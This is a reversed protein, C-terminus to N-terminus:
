PSDDRATLRVSPDLCWALVSSWDGYGADLDLHRGGVIIDSDLGLAAYASGAGGVCYPDDEAYVLRVKGSARALAASDLDAPGFRAVAATGALFVLSPPAVLLVRDVYQPTSLGAVARLWLPVALSHAVVIREGRGLQDLEALMLDTWAVPDPRDPDPFQPYLVQEGGARLHEVLWYQWHGTPRRNQWGHLVLFRRDSAMRINDLRSGARAPPPGSLRDAGDPVSRITAM